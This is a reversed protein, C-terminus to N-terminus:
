STSKLKYLKRKIIWKVKKREKRQNYYLETAQPQSFEDGMYSERCCLMHTVTDENRM